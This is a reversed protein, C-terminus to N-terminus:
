PADQTWLGSAISAGSIAGCARREGQAVSTNKKNRQQKLRDARKYRQGV